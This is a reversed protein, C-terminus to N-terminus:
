KNLRFKKLLTETETLNTIPTIDSDTSVLKIHFGSNSGPDHSLVMSHTKPNWHSGDKMNITVTKIKTYDFTSM